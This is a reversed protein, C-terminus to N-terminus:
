GQTITLKQTGGFQEICVTDNVLEINRGRFGELPYLVEGLIIGVVMVM